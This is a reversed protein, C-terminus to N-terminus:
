AVASSGQDERVPLPCVQRVRICDAFHGGGPPLGSGWRGLSVAGCPDKCPLSSCLATRAQEGSVCCRSGESVTEGSPARLDPPLLFTSSSIIASLKGFRILGGFIISILFYNLTWEGLIKWLIYIFFFNQHNLSCSTM